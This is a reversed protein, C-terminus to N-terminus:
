SMQSPAAGFPTYQGTWYIIIRVMPYKIIKSRKKAEAVTQLRKLYLKGSADFSSYVRTVGLKKDEDAQDLRKKLDCEKDEPTQPMDSTVSTM